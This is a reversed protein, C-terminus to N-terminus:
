IALVIRINIVRTVSNNQELLPTIKENLFPLVVLLVSSYVFLFFVCFVLWFGVVRRLLRTLVLPSSLRLAHVILLLTAARPIRFPTTMIRTKSIPWRGSSLSRSSDIPRTWCTNRSWWRRCLRM